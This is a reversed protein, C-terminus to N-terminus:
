ALNYTFPSSEKEVCHFISGAIVYKETNNRLIAAIRVLCMGIEEIILSHETNGWELKPEQGKIPLWEGKNTASVSIRMSEVLTDGPDCGLSEL